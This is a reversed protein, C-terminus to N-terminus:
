KVFSRLEETSIYYKQVANKFKLTTDYFEQSIEYFEQLALSGDYDHVLNNRVRLM